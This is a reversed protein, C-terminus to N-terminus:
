QTITSNKYVLEYLFFFFIEMGQYYSSTFQRKRKKTRLARKLFQDGSSSIALLAFLRSPMYTAPNGGCVPREARSEAQLLMRCLRCLCLWVFLVEM